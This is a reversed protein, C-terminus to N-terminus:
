LNPIYLINTLILERKVGLVLLRLSIDGKRILSLCTERIGSVTIRKNAQLNQYTIFLERLWFM